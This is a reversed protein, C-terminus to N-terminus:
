HGPRISPKAPLVDVVIPQVGSQVTLPQNAVQVTLSQNGVQVAVPERIDAQVGLPQVAPLERGAPITATRTAGVVAVPLTSYVQTGIRVGAIVVPMPEQKPQALVPSADRVGLWFLELAIVTLIAKLYRDASM